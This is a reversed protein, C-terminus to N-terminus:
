PTYILKLNGQNKVLRYKLHDYPGGQYLQKEFTQQHILFELPPTESHKEFGAKIFASGESFQKDIYTMIDGANKERCFNRILKTLGGTVTIGDKCCFRILEFSRLHNPLRQMKRGKSFAALAVLEDKFFLGYNFGSAASGMLHYTNLFDEATKKDAKQIVCQRAFVRNNLGLRSQVISAIKQPNAAVVDMCPELDLRIKKTGYGAILIRGKLDVSITRQQLLRSLSAIPIHNQSM